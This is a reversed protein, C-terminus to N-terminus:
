LAIYRVMRTAIRYMPAANEQTIGVPYNFIWPFRNLIFLGILIIGCILPSMWLTSKSAFGESDKEPWNFPIAVKEPLQSYFVALVIISGILLLFTIWEIAKDTRTKPIKIRPRQM